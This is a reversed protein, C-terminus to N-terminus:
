EPELVVTECGFKVDIQAAADGQALTCAAPCLVVREPTTADDFMWALDGAKCDVGAATRPLVQSQTGSSYVVNVRERDFSQGQPAAPIAYDCSVKAGVIVAEALKDLLAAFPDTAGAKGADDLNGLLGM